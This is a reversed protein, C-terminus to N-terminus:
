WDKSIGKNRAEEVLEDFLEKENAYPVLVNVGSSQIFSYEKEVKAFDHEEIAKVLDNKDHDYNNDEYIMTYYERIHEPSSIDIPHRASLLKVKLAANEIFKAPYLKPEDPIFVRVRGKRRGNRNCRGACQVISDLSALARYMVCFDLDVGAEICSTSVLRCPLGNGLREAVDKIVNDRHSKCMDTSIHFCEGEACQKSLLDFLKNTHDKRNLVCCVSREDSMEEAIQELLIPKEIDWEIEVRKTRSYLATPDSIIERSNFKIDPRVDFAPQTATSFLATSNFTDCLARMTEMTTGVLEAPISQAEDFVVVSNAANHLFRLDSPKSKFFAEFFKVSTTIIVPMDWREALLKIEDGDGYAAMSHSELVDGCIEKYIKTNQSIISLFPLVIIIRKKNYIKAHRAAFALLALTKGTGTPATLTFMGPENKAAKFCSEYVENRIKVLESDANSHIIIRERYKKLEDLISDANLRRQDVTELISEDEHSATATYDGDCLCSLLIRCHLMEPLNNYFSVIDKKLVPKDKPIMDKSRIYDWATRHQQEGYVAFRKGRGTDNPSRKLIANELDDDIYWQLGDHHAYIVRALQKYGKLFYAGAAAHNVNHERGDLVSQFLDSAKGADHFVGMWRGASGEGFCDAFGKALAATKALHDSLPEKKGSSNESHAYYEKM